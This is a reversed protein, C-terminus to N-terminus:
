IVRNLNTNTLELHSALPIKKKSATANEVAVSLKNIVRSLAIRVM